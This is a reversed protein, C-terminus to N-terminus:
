TQKVRRIRGRDREARCGREESADGERREITSLAGIKQLVRPTLSAHNCKCEMFMLM